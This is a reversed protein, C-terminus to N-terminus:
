CCQSCILMWLRCANLEFCWHAEVSGSTPHGGVVKWSKLVSWAVNLEQLTLSNVPYDVTTENSYMQQELYKVEKRVPIIDHRYLIDM